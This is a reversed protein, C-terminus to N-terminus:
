TVTSGRVSCRWLPAWETMAGWQVRVRGCTVSGRWLLSHAETSFSLASFCRDAGSTARDHHSAKILFVIVRGAEPAKSCSASSLEHTQLRLRFCDFCKKVSLSNVQLKMWATLAACSVTPIPTLGVSERRIDGIFIWVCVRKWLIWM